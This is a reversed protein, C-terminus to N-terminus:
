AALDHPRSPRLSWGIQRRHLHEEAGFDVSCRDAFAVLRQAKDEGVGGQYQDICASLGRRFVSAVDQLARVEDSSPSLQDLYDVDARQIAEALTLVM